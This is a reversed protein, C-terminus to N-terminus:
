YDNWTKNKKIGYSTLLKKQKETVFIEAETNMQDQSIHYIHSALFPKFERVLNVRIWQEIQKIHLFTCEM